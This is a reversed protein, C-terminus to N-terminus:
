HSHGIEFLHSWALRLAYTLRDDAAPSASTPQAGGGPAPELAEELFSVMEGWAAGPAGGAAIAEVDTVFAHPQDPYVTITHEVGAQELGDEFGRVEDLPISSDAGGFIGLVPGPLRALADPDTVVQGYFVVTAALNPNTLSYRLSAGGGFCFGAIAIREADVDLQETLWAYVAELDQNQESAPTAIVNYIASPLFDTTVGRFLNPAIVLYGQRALLDAKAIMEPRLGWFEHILIVAPHPGPGTPRAVYADVDPGTRGPVRLTAIQALRGAGQSRDIAVVAVLVLGATLMLGLVALVIRAFRRM